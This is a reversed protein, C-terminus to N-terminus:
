QVNRAAVRIILSSSIEKRSINVSCQTLRKAYKECLCFGYFTGNVDLVDDQKYPMDVWNM